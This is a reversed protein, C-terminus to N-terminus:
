KVLYPQILKLNDGHQGHFVASMDTGCQFIDGGTHTSRLNTVDYERGDITIICANATAQIAGTLPKPPPGAFKIFVLSGAFIVAVLLGYFIINAATRESM